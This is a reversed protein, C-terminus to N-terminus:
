RWKDPRQIVHGTVPDIVKDPLLSQSIRGQGITFSAPLLAKLDYSYREPPFAAVVFTSPALTRAMKVAPILDSDANVIMASTALGTAVDAVLSVAINVDTEKEEYGTWTAGCKRCRMQKAQYRGQVIEIMDGNHSRLAQLYASQRSAADPDNLV